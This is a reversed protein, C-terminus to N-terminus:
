PYEPPRRLLKETKEAKGAIKAGAPSIVVTAGGEEMVAAIGVVTLVRLDEAQQAAALLPAIGAERAQHQWPLLLSLLKPLFKLMPIQKIFSLVGPRRASTL